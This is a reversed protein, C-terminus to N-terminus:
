MQTVAVSVTSDRRADTVVTQVANEYQIRSLCARVVCVDSFTNFKLHSLKRLVTKQVFM